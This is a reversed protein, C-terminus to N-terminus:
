GCSSDRTNTLNRSWSGYKGCSILLFFPFTSPMSVKYTATASDDYLALFNINEYASVCVQSDQYDGKALMQM